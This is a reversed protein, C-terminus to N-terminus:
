LEFFVRKANRNEKRKQQERKQQEAKVRRSSACFKDKKM